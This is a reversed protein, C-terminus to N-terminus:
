KIILKKCGLYVQEGLVPLDLKSKVEAGLFNEFGHSIGKILTELTGDLQFYDEKSLLHLSPVPNSIVKRNFSISEVVPIGFGEDIAPYVCFSSGLYCQELQKDTPNKVVVLNGPFNSQVRSIEAHIPSNSWGSSGALTLTFKVGRKWLISSAELLLLHNKRPEFTSVCLINPLIAQDQRILKSVAHTPRLGNPIVIESEKQYAGQHYSIFESQTKKSVFFIYDASLCFELYKKFSEIRSSPFLSPRSVPLLDHILVALQCDSKRRIDLWFNIEKNSHIPNAILIVSNSIENVLNWKRTRFHRFVSIGSDYVRRLAHELLGLNNRALFNQLSRMAVWVIIVISPLSSSSKFIEKQQKVNQVKLKGCSEVVKLFSVDLNEYESIDKLVRQIGSFSSTNYLHSVDFLLEGNLKV